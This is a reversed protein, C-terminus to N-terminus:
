AARWPLKSFRAWTTQEGSSTMGYFNGDAGQVLGGNPSAGDACGSQSCFSYLMTLTGAAPSKSFRARTTPGAAAADDRLLERRHRAGVHCNALLRGPLRKPLLLQVVDDVHRWDYNQLGHGHPENRQRPEDDRLLERRRRAGTGRLPCRRGHLRGSFLLHVADDAYRGPYNQLSHGMQQGRWRNSDRLLERRQRARAGRLSKRRGSLRIPPLLQVADNACRWSYDPFGHGLLKGRGHRDDRLLKRRRRAGVCRNSSAGDTLDFSHLPTLTGAATVQFVTGDGNTGGGYTTGYFNGDTGLVLSTVPNAGNTKDFNVLTTLTQAPSVMATMALFMLVISVTRTLCSITIFARKM